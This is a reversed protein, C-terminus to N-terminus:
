VSSKAKMEPMQPSQCVSYAESGLSIFCRCAHARRLFFFLPFFPTRHPETRAFNNTMTLAHHVFYVLIYNNKKQQFTYILPACNLHLHLGISFVAIWTM